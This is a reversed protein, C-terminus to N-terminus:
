IKMYPSFLSDLSIVKQFESSYGNREVGNASVLVLHLAKKTGTAELFRAQRNRIEEYLDSSIHLPEKTFKMECIDIVSDERDILM